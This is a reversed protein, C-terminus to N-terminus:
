IMKLSKWVFSVIALLCLTCLRAWFTPNLLEAGAIEPCSRIVFLGPLLSFLKAPILATLKRNDGWLWDIIIEDRLFFSFMGRMQRNPQSTWIFLLLTNPLPGIATKEFVLFECRPCLPRWAIMSAILMTQFEPHSPVIGIALLFVVKDACLLQTRWTLKEETINLFFMALPVVSGLTSNMNCSWLERNVFRSCIVIESDRNLFFM